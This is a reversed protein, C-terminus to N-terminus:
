MSGYAWQPRFTAHYAAPQGDAVTAVVVAMVPHIMLGREGCVIFCHEPVVAASRKLVAAM